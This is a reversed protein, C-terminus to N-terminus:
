LDNINLKKVFVYRELQEETLPDEMGFKYYENKGSSYEMELLIVRQTFSPMNLDLSKGHYDVLWHNLSITLM